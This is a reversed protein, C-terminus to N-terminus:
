WARSTAYPPLTAMVLAAMQKDAEDKSLGNRVRLNNAEIRALQCPRAPCVERRTGSAKAVGHEGCYRCTYHQIASSPWGNAPEREGSQVPGPKRPKRPPNPREAPPVWGRARKNRRSLALGCVRGCTRQEGYSPHYHAGCMECARAAYHYPQGCGRCRIDSDASAPKFQRMQNGLRAGASRNCAAHALVAPGDKGGLARDIVHDRELAQSHYMPQGCRWCLDGDKLAALLRRRDAAHDAGLGRYAASNVRAM